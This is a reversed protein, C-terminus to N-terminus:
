LRRDKRAKIRRKSYQRSADEYRMTAEELENAEFYKLKALADLMQVYSTVVSMDDQYEGTYPPHQVHQQQQQQQQRQQQQRRIRAERARQEELEDLRQQERVQRELEKEIEQRRIQEELREAIIKTERSSKELLEAEIRRKRAAM